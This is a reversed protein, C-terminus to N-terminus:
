DAHIMDSDPVASILCLLDCPKIRTAQKTHSTEHPKNRVAQQTHGTAHPRKGAVREGLNLRTQSPQIPM